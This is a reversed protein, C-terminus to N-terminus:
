TVRSFPNTTRKWQTSSRFKAQSQPVPLPFPKLVYCPLVYYLYHRRQGFRAAAARLIYLYLNTRFNIMLTIVVKRHSLVFQWRPSRQVARLHKSEDVNRFNVVKQQGCYKLEGICIVMCVTSNHWNRGPIQLQMRECSNRSLHLLYRCSGEVKKHWYVRGSVGKWFTVKVM